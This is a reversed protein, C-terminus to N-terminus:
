DPAILLVETYYELSSSKELRKKQKLQLERFFLLDYYEGNLLKALRYNKRTLVNLLNLNETLIQDNLLECFYNSISILLYNSFTFFDYHPM